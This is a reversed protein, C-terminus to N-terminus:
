RLFKRTHASRRFIRRVNGRAVPAHEQPMQMRARLVAARISLPPENEGLLKAFFDSEFALHREHAPPATKFNPIQLAPLFRVFLFCAGVLM